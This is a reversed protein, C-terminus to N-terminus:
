GEVGCRRRDHLERAARRAAKDVQDHIFHRPQDTGVHAKIHRAEIEVGAEALHARALAIPREVSPYPKRGMGTLRHIVALSDIQALVKDGRQAIGAALMAAVGNAFAQAEAESPSSLSGKLAACRVQMIGRRSRAWAAWGGTGTKAYYSADTILTVLM